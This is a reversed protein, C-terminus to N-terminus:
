LVLCLITLPLCSRCPRLQFLNGINWNGEGSRRQPTTTITGIECVTDAFNACDLPLSFLHFIPSIPPPLTRLSKEMNEPQDVLDVILGAGGRNIEGAFWKGGNRLIQEM